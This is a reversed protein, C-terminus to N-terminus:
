KRTTEEDNNLPCHKYLHGYEHCRMHRFPIHVYDMPKQWIEDHYELEMYEPLPEAINMYVCIRAYSTYKGRKTSEAVKVFTGVINGIGELMDPDCFEMPLSFLRVWIPAVIMKEHDPNYSDEWHRLFLEINNMFYPGGEFIREKDELNAFIVTFFGKAGLILDIHREAEM